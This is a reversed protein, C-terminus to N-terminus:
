LLEWHQTLLSLLERRSEPSSYEAPGDKSPESKREYHANLAFFVGPHFVQSPQVQYQIQAGPILDNRGQIMLVRLGPQSLHKEWPRKPSLLHGFRHWVEESELKYHLERNMGVAWFHTHELTGFSSLVLDRLPGAQSPDSTRAIFRNQEVQLDLWDAKFRTVAETVIVDKAQGIEEQRLYKFRAFWAPHFISPNFQGVLVVSCQDLALTFTAM